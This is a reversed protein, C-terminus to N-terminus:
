RFCEYGGGHVIKTCDVQSAIANAVRRIREKGIECINRYGALAAPKNAKCEEPLQVLIFRRNGGDEANARMVAEATTASGSFFDLVIDGDQPALNALTLLHRILRVPKPGDFVGDNMIAKLEQAGEQSHGVWEYLMLSTPLKDAEDLKKFFDSVAERADDSITALILLQNLLWNVKTGSFIGADLLNKLEAIALGTDEEIDRTLLSLSTPTMGESKRESLFRKISPMNDGDKGFNIRNDKVLAEYGDKGIRWCRGDPPDVVRGSPTVIQYDYAKNYSKVSMDGSKWPGRPDNDPNKYRALAEKTLPLRGIAFTDLERAYMLVYDHSYSVYKADNKPSYARQWVFQAVFNREGFIEDCIDRLHHQEHDDISIFIVGDCRLLDRALLLRSYMMSCWKSHYRPSTNANLTFAKSVLRAGSDEDIEGAEKVYDEQNQRFDDNYVFENGTNYPPDIYIMKVKGLYSGQLMKLAQLNDGEIYLNGTNDWDLSEAPCPRLTMDIVRNAERAAENKGSWAFGFLERHVSGQEESLETGVLTGLAQWNIAREYRIETVGTDENKEEEQKEIVCSPFKETVFELLQEFNLKARDETKGTIKEPVMAEWVLFVSVSGSCRGHCIWWLM